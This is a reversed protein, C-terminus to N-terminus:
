NDNQHERHPMFENDFPIFASTMAHHALRHTTVLWGGPVRLYTITGCDSYEFEGLEMNYIKDADM